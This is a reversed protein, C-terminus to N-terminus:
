QAVLSLPPAEERRASKKLRYRGGERFVMGNRTMRNLLTYVSGRNLTIGRKSALEIMVKVKLGIEGAERLLGEITESVGVKTQGATAPQIMSAEDLLSIAIDIGAIQNRLAEMERFLRDRQEILPRTQVTARVDMTWAQKKSYAPWVSPGVGALDRAIVYAVPQSV